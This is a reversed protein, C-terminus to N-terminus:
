AFGIAVEREKGSVTRGDFGMKESETEERKISGEREGM